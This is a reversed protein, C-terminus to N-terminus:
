IPLGLKKAITRCDWCPESFEPLPFEKRTQAQHEANVKFQRLTTIGMEHVHKREKKTLDKWRALMERSRRQQEKRAAKREEDSKYIPPRGGGKSKSGGKAGIRSFYDSLEKSIM